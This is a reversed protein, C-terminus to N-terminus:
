STPTAGSDRDAAAPEALHATHLTTLGASDVQAIAAALVEAECQTAMVGLSFQECYQRTQVLLRDYTEVIGTETQLAAQDTQFTFISTSQAQATSTVLALTLLAASFAFSRPAHMTMFQETENIRDVHNVDFQRLELADPYPNFTALLYIMPLRIKNMLM